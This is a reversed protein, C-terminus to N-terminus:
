TRGGTARDPTLKHAAVPVVQQESIMWAHFNQGAFLPAFAEDKVNLGGTYAGFAPLILRTGDGAFCRRRLRRGRVRVVACPHLHGAIEGIAPADKPEHRFTLPGVDAEEAIDGGFGEPLPDHNGKIWIWGTQGTLATLRDRDGTSMRDKANGDHFSDGLAIVQDPKVRDIVAQLRKLTASTDYPPLYVGRAGYSSGKEFHLDAVALLKRAPWYLTGEAMLQLTEGCIVLERLPSLTLPDSM